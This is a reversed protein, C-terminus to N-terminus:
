PTGLTLDDFSTLADAKTWLGILGAEAFTEDKAELLKQDDLWCVIEAGKMVVRVTYWRGAVTEVKASALQTRRADVVHYVRFNSELPNFRCIYYNNEDRCRWILGGGQDVKGGNARVRVSLELDKASTGGLMAVSYASDAGAGAVLSFVNPKSTAGDDRAVEWRGAPTSSGTEGAKWGEPLKGPEAKDFNWVTAKAPETKAAEPRPPGDPSAVVPQATLADLTVSAVRGRAVLKIRYVPTAADVAFEVSVGRADPLRSLAAELAQLASIHASEIAPRLSELDATEEADPVVDVVEVIAGSNASVLASRVSEGALVRVDYVFGGERESIHASLFRAADMDRLVTEIATVLRVRSEAAAALRQPPIEGSTRAPEGSLSACWLCACLLSLCVASRTFM